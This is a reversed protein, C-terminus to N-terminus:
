YKNNNNNKNICSSKNRKFRVGKEGGVLEREAKILLKSRQLKNSKNNRKKYKNNNNNIKTEKNM